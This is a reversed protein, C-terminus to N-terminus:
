LSLKHGRGTGSTRARVELEVGFPRAPFYFVVTIFAFLSGTGIAQRATNDMNLIIGILLAISLKTTKRMEAVTPLHAKLKM